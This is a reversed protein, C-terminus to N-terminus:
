PETAVIVKGCRDVPIGREECYRTLLAKGTTCLTAKLSGAKYYIGAHMVGSNHGTQESGVQRDKELVALRLGPYRQLLERATALGVIGAGVVVVDYPRKSM